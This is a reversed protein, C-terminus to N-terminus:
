QGLRKQWLSHTHPSAAESGPSARRSTPPPSRPVRPERERIEAVRQWHLAAAEWNGAGQRITALASHGESESPMQEVLSTAAREANDGDEMQLYHDRLATWAGIDRQAFEAFEHRAALLEDKAEAKELASIRSRHLEWDTPATLIAAQLHQAALAPEQQQLYVAALAKRLTPNEQGTRELETQLRQVYADLDPAAQLVKQLHHLAARRQRIDAGRSVIAGSAADVAEWTKGQQSYAQALSQYDASLQHDGPQRIARKRRAVLEEFCSTAQANLGTSLCATALVRVAHEQWREAQRFHQDAAAWCAQLKAKEAHYYGQMLGSRHQVNNPYTAVLHEFIPVSEKWRALEQLYQGLRAKGLEGLVGRKDADILIETARERASLSRTMFYAVTLLIPESDPQAEAVSNAVGLFLSTHHNRPHQWYNTGGLLHERLMTEMTKLARQRLAKSVSSHSEWLLIHDIHFNRRDQAADYRDLIDLSL